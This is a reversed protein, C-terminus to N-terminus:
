SSNTTHVNPTIPGSYVPSQPGPESGDVTYRITGNKWYLGPEIKVDTAITVGSLYPLYSEGFIAVRLARAM